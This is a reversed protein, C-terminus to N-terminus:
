AKSPNETLKRSIKHFVLVSVPVSLVYLVSLFILTLWPKVILAVILSGIGALFLKIKDKAIHIHKVSFTPIRSAMMFGILTIYCVNFSASSIFGVNEFELSIMLPVLALIAGAPIPIGTFFFKSTADSKKESGIGVNFRALRTAGCIAFILVSAWGLGKISLDRLAWTYVILAPAIGFDVFDVLSDLNAGFASSINLYRAVRGDMGDLFAAIVVLLTAQEWHGDLGYKISTLGFCLATLTIINPIFHYLYFVFTKHTKQHNVM